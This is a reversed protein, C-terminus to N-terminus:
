ECSIKDTLRYKVGKFAKIATYNRIDPKFDMDSASLGISIALTLCEM